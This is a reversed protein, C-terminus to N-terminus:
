FHREQATAGPLIGRPPGESCRLWAGVVQPDLRTGACRAAEINTIEQGVGMTACLSNLSDVTEAAHLIRAGLPIRDGALRAPFGSGDFCERSARVLLSTNALFPAAAAIDAAIGVQEGARRMDALDWEDAGRSDGLVLRGLNQVLAACELEGLARHHLGLEEGMKIAATAVRHGHALWAPTHRYITAMLVHLATSSGIGSEAFAIKLRTQRELQDDRLITPSTM